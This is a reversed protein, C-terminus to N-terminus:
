SDAPLFGADDNFLLCGIYSSQEHQMYLFCRRTSSLEGIRIRTLVGIGGTLPSKTGTRKNVDVGLM